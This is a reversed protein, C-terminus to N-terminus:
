CTYSKSPMILVVLFDNIVNLPEVLNIKVRILGNNVSTRILSDNKEMLKQRNKLRECNYKKM